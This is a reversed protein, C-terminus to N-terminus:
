KDRLSQIVKDVQPHSGTITLMMFENNEESIVSRSQVGNKSKFTFTYGGEAAQPKTGKLERSMEKALTAANKNEANAVVISIAAVNGPAFLAVTEGDQTTTWGDPVTVKFRAFEMEAASVSLATCLVLLLALAFRKM